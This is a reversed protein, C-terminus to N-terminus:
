SGAATARRRGAASWKSMKAAGYKRRGIWAALAAPDHVGDDRGSQSALRRVM